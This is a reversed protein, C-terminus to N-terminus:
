ARSWAPIIAGHSFGWPGTSSGHGVNNSSSGVVFKNQSGLGTSNRLGDNEGGTSGSAMITIPRESESSSASDADMCESVLEPDSGPASPWAEKEPSDNVVANKCNTRSDSTSSVPGRESNEYHSGPTNHNTDLIFFFCLFIDLTQFFSSYIIFTYPEEVFYLM